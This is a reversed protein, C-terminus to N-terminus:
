ATVSEADMALAIVNLLERITVERRRGSPDIGRFKYGELWVEPKYGYRKALREIRMTEQYAKEAQATYTALVNGEGCKAHFLVRDDDGRFVTWQVFAYMDAGERDCIICKGGANKKGVLGLAPYTKAM